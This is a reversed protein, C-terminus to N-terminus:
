MFIMLLMVSFNDSSKCTFSVEWLLTDIAAAQKEMKAQEMALEQDSPVIKADDSTFFSLADDFSSEGDLACPKKGAFYEGMDYNSYYM